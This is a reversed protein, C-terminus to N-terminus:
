DPLLTSVLMLGGGVVLFPFARKVYHSILPREHGPLYGAGIFTAAVFLGFPIRASGAPLSVLTRVGSIVRGILILWTGGAWFSKQRFM